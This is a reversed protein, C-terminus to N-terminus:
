AGSQAPAEAPLGAAGPPLLHRIRAGAGGATLAAIKAQLDREAETVRDHQRLHEEWTSVQFVERYLGEEEAVRFLQWGYGGDRLRSARLRQMLALFDAREAEGVRYDLSVMVPGTGSEEPAVVPPAPWHLSANRLAADGGGLPVSRVALTALALGGAAILLAASVGLAEAVLGWVLSGASMAGFFATLFLSLGRARVWNPLAGQAAVHFSSLVAIWSAGALLAAVVAVAPSAVAAMLALSLATGGAGLLVVREAELRARLWPLAFAGTVAGAGVAGLLLGYLGSGGALVDRAILPLLSWYASAFAFFAVARLIVRGLAPSHRAYRLGALMAPLLTEAPVAGTAREEGKWFWLVAIIGLFSLTNLLFPSWLGVTTILVGALAPGIARSINIGVSNLSIAAPLDPRPVLSPVIAQWAPAMFAAGAGLLFTFILLLWATMAGAAVLATMAAAAAFMGMNAVLLLRRRDVIDAM